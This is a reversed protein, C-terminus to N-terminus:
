HDNQLTVRCALVHQKCLLYFGCRCSACPSTRVEVPLLISSARRGIYTTLNQLRMELASRQQRTASLDVAKDWAAQLNSCMQFSMRATYWYSMGRRRRTVRLSASARRICQQAYALSEVQATSSRGPAPALCCFALSLRQTLCSAQTYYVYFCRCTTWAPTHASSGTKQRGPM